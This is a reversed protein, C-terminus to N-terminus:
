IRVGLDVCQEGVAGRGHRCLQTRLANNQWLNRFGLSVLSANASYGAAIRLFAHQVVKGTLAYALHLLADVDYVSLLNQLLLAKLIVLFPPKDNRCAAKKHLAWVATGVELVGPISAEGCKCRLRCYCM